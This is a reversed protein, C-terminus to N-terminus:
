YIKETLEAVARRQEQTVHSYEELVPLSQRVLKQLAHDPIEGRLYSDLWHRWSHFTLGRARREAEPIGAARVAANFSEEVARKAIPVAATNGWFIFGNGWPNGAALQLLDRALRDTLPVARYSGWKPAKEGELEQWNRVVRITWLVNEELVELVLHEPKLARCEGLRMGTAAALTNILRFREDAWSSSLVAKAEALSLIQRPAHQEKLKLVQSMPNFRLLGLRKAEALAVGVAQRIGNIRRAGLKTTDNLHVVLRELLAASIEALPLSRQGAQDLFPLVYKAVAAQNNALYELALPRGALAKLKTYQGEPSWFGALYDYLAEGGTAPVGDALWSRAVDDAAAESTQGTARRRSYEQRQPDWFAVYYQYRDQKKDTIGARRKYLIYPKRM